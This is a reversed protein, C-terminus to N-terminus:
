KRKSEIEKFVPKMAMVHMGKNMTLENHVPQMAKIHLQFAIEEARLETLLHSAKEEAEISSTVVATESQSGTWALGYWPRTENDSLGEPDMLHKSECERM